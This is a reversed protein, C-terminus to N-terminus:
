GRVKENMKEIITNVTIKDILDRLCEFFFDNEVKVNLRYVEGNIAKKVFAAGDDFISKMKDIFAEELQEPPTHIFLSQLEVYRFEFYQQLEPTLKIPPKM